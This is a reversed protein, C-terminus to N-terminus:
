DVAALAATRRARCLRVAALAVLLYWAVLGLLSWDAGPWDVGIGEGLWFTGFAALLVGVAFKLANEPVKALPRHLVLGLLVVVLLAAGAGVCAPVLLGGAAGVAIVIFVVEIGELVVIKFSTGIAVADWRPDRAREYSRLQATEGAFAAEEDHLAIVGAARLIAKRLWRLGFLLLLLGVGLQVYDLPIRTLAPGLALVLLALACLALGTGLLAPRWGRVTGVALVVTLAEVFEVLSALFAATLSPIAHAWSAM